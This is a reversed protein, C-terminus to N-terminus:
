LKGEMTLREWNLKREELNPILNSRDRPVSRWTSITKFPREHWGINFSLENSYDPTAFFELVSWNPLHDVIWWAIALDDAKGTLVKCSVFPISICAVAGAGHGSSTPRDWVHFGDNDRACNYKDVGEKNVEPSRYGSRM